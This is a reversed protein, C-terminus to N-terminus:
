HVSDDLYSSFFILRSITLLPSCFRNLSVKFIMYLKNLILACTYIKEDQKMSTSLYGYFTVYVIHLGTFCFKLNKFILLIVCTMHQELIPNERRGQRDSISLAPTDLCAQAPTPSRSRVIVRVSSKCNPAAHHPRNSRLAAIPECFRGCGLDIFATLYHQRHRESALVGQM